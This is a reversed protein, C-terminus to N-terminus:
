GQKKSFSDKLGVISNFVPAGQKSYRSDVVYYGNRLFQFREEAKATALAPEVYATSKNLSERDLNFLLDEGEPFDFPDPTSFLHSFHRVEVEKADAVSVWHLTGKVKRGDDSWGGRTAPDYSCRLEIVKGSADKIVENCTVYYAHKLRVEKGPAMRFWKKNAQEIFDEREIYIEKSFPIMRNGAASDEPNNEAELEETKGEPFNTIVVKLPDLVAMVRKTIRNLVERQCFEFLAFEVMNDAKAVGVRKCFERIGEAVYGRRRMGALTPMRPDDWGDVVGETVLRKLYRKSLMMYELNLGAFEIQRPRPDYGLEVLCWDYLPRHDEFELTCLSHTIHELADSICHTYDYMPYICWKDGTRHHHAFKIRYLAPDRLNLNPSSMDIRARLTYQGESFEGNRMREFLDLNEEVSRNRSPSERGPETLTGRYERLQEPSLECVYAKGTKILRVADDYIREFYDSAFFLNDWKFGLWEIDRQIADVFEQEEKEPNTDDFRLNCTGNYEEKIGFNLCISKAHGIHLYGNPEPPFRTFISTHKGSKLDQDIITRIFDKGAGAETSSQNKEKLSM